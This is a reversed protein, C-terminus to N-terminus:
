IDLIYAERLKKNAKIKYVIAGIILPTSLIVAMYINYDQKNM